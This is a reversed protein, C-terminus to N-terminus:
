GGGTRTRLRAREQELRPLIRAWDDASAGYRLVAPRDWAVPGEYVIVGSEPRHASLRRTDFGATVGLVAAPRLTRGQQMLVLEQPEFPTDPVTSYFTILVLVPEAVQRPLMGAARAATAALREYSDPSLLRLIAGDLPTARIQLDVGSLALSAEEQRLSGQGGPPLDAAGGPVIDSVAAPAAAACGVALVAAALV